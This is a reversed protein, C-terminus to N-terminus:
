KIFTKQEGGELEYQRHTDNRENNKTALKPKRAGVILLQDLLCRVLFSLSMKRFVVKNIGAFLEAFRNFIQLLFFVPGTHEFFRKM